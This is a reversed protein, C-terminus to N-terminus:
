LEGHDHRLHGLNRRVLRGSLIRKRHQLRHSNHRKPHAPCVGVPFRSYPVHAKKRAETALALLKLTADTVAIKTSSM